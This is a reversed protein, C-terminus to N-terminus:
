FSSNELVARLNVVPMHILDWSLVVGRARAKRAISVMERVHGPTINIHFAPISVAEIGLYVPTNGMREVAKGAEVSILDAPAGDREIDEQSYGAMEPLHLQMWREADETKINLFDVLGHTLQPIELRLGAPGNAYRYVMPKVWAALRSLAAYDQGVLYALGPSFLDLSLEVGLQSTLELIEEVLRTISRARFGLFQELLDQEASPLGGILEELWNGRQLRMEQYSLGSNTPIHSLLTRVKELDLGESGALTRCAPCFCSLVDDLGNAPSPFRIKDLFVGDFSYETLLRKLRDLVAKKVEIQNPCAFSFTEGVEERTKASGWGESRRGLYNVVRHEPQLVPNDSLVAYWLFVSKTLRQNTIAWYLAPIEEGGAILIDLRATEAAQHIAELVGALGKRNVESQTSNLQAAVVFDGKTM